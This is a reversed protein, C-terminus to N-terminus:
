PRRRTTTLGVAALGVLLLAHSQPESVDNAKTPGAELLATEASLSSSLTYAGGSAGSGTGVIRYYYHGPQLDFEHGNGATGGGFDYSGVLVDGIDHFLYVTGGKGGNAAGFDKSEASSLVGTADNLAFLIFDDVNGKPQIFAVEISDHLGWDITTISTAYANSVSANALVFMALEFRM